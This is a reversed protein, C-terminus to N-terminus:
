RMRGYSLQISRRAEFGYTAPEIGAPRVVAITTKLPLLRLSQFITVDVREVPENEKGGSEQQEGALPSYFESPSDGLIFVIPILAQGMTPKKRLPLHASRHGAAVM